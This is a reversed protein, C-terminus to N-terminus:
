WGKRGSHAGRGAHEEFDPRSFFTGANACANVMRFALTRHATGHLRDLLVGVSMSFEHRMYPRDLLGCAKGAM